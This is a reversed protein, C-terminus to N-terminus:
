TCKFKDEWKFRSLVNKMIADHDIDQGTTWKTKYQALGIGLDEDQYCGSASVWGPDTNIFSGKHYIDVNVTEVPIGALHARLLYDDDSFVKIFAEDLYGIKDIAIFPIYVCFFAFREASTFVMAKHLDPDQVATLSVVGEAKDGAVCMAWLNPLRCDQNVLWVGGADTPYVQPQLDLFSKLKEPHLKNFLYRLGQNANKTFQFPKGNNELATIWPYKDKFYNVFRWDCSDFCCVVEYFYQKSEKLDTLLNDLDEKNPQGLVDTVPIVISQSM